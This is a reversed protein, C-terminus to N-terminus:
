ESVAFEQLRSLFRPVRLRTVPPSVVADNAEVSESQSIPQETQLKGVEAGWASLRSVLDASLPQPDQPFGPVQPALAPQDSRASSADHHMAWLSRIDETTLPRDMDQIIVVEGMAAALGLDIATAKGQKPTYRRARVQPFRCSLDYLVEETSDTSGDDIVVLEFSDTLDSLIELLREVETGINSQVNHVPTVISLSKKVAAGKTLGLSMEAPTRCQSDSIETQGAFLKPM